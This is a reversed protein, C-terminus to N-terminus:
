DGARDDRMQVARLIENRVESNQRTVAAALASLERRTEYLQDLLSLIIPVSEEEVEWDYRLTCILRIRACQMESFHLTGGENLPSVWAEEVWRALDERHLPRITALLEEVRMM